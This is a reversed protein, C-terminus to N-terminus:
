YYDLASLWLSVRMLQLYLARHGLSEVQSLSLGPRRLDEKGALPAGLLRRALTRLKAEKTYGGCNIVRSLEADLMRVRVSRKDGEDDSDHISIPPSRHPKTHPRCRNRRPSASPSPVHPQPPPSPTPQRRRARGYETRGRSVKREFIDQSGHYDAPVHADDPLSADSTMAATVTLLQISPSASTSVM